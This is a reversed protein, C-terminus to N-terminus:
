SMGLHIIELRIPQTHYKKGMPALLHHLTQLDHAQHALKKDKSVLQM